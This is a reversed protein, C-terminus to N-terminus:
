MWLPEKTYLAELKALEQEVQIKFKRFNDLMGLYVLAGLCYENTLTKHHPDLDELIVKMLVDRETTFWNAWSNVGLVLIGLLYQRSEQRYSKDAEYEKKNQYMTLAAKIADENTMQYGKCMGQYLFRAFSHIMGM